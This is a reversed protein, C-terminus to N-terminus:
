IPSVTRWTPSHPASPSPTATCTASSPSECVPVGYAALAAALAPDAVYLRAPYAHSARWGGETEVVHGWLHVEGLIRCITNAEDRGRAYSLADVPDRAAHFGCNCDAGPVPHPPLATAFPDDEHRCEAVLARDHPWVLDHLVSGLRVGTATHTVVWARWGTVPRSSERLTRGTEM